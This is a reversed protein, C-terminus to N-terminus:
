RCFTWRKRRRQFCKWFEKTKHNTIIDDFWRAKLALELKPFLFFDWPTLDPSYPPRPTDNKAASQPVSVASLAAASDYHLLWDGTRWKGPGKRGTSAALERHTIHKWPCTGQGAGYEWRSREDISTGLTWCSGYIESWKQVQFVLWINQTRSITEDELALKLM